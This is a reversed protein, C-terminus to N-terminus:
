TASWGLVVAIAAIAALGSAVTSVVAPLKGDSLEGRGTAVVLRAAAVRRHALVSLLAGSVAACASIVAGLVGFTTPLLRLAIVGGLMLSLSSRSWALGTREAQLGTDKDM